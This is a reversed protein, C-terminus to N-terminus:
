QTKCSRAPISRSAGHANMLIRATVAGLHCRPLRHLMGKTRVPVAPDLHSATVDTEVSLSQAFPIARRDGALLRQGERRVTRLPGLKQQEIQRSTFMRM